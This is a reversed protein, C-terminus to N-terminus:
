PMLKKEKAVNTQKEEMVNIKKEGISGNNKVKKDEYRMDKKLTKKIQM